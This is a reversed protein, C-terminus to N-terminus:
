VEMLEAEKAEGVRDVEAVYRDTLKQLREDGRRHDDESIVKEKEMERLDEHVERRVNRVAVRAEEVKRRVVKALDRRREETLQPIVLRIVRGDNSPTLGLESKLIAKEIAQISGKDYPQIVLLRPEPASINAIQNLPTSVGYYDVPLRDVLAPTARGTRLTALERRLAEVAKKMRNEAEALAEEIM